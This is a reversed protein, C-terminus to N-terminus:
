KCEHTGLFKKIDDANDIATGEDSSQTWALFPGDPTELISLVAGPPRDEDHKMVEKLIANIDRTADELRKTHFKSISACLFQARSCSLTGRSGCSIGDGLKWRDLPM